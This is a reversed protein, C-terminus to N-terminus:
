LQPGIWYLLPTTWGFALASAFAGGAMMVTM